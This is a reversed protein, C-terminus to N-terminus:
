GIWVLFTSSYRCDSRIPAPFRSCNGISITCAPRPVIWVLSNSSYWCEAIMVSQHGTMEIVRSHNDLWLAQDICLCAERNAKWAGLSEQASIQLWDSRLSSFEFVARSKIIWFSTIPYLETIRQGPITGCNLLHIPGASAMRRNRGPVSEPLHHNAQWRIM